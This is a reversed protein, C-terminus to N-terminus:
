SEVSVVPFLDLTQASCENILLVVMWVGPFCSWQPSDALQFSNATGMWFWGNSVWLFLPVCDTWSMVQELGLVVVPALGLVLVLVWAM